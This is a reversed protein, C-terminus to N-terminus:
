NRRRDQGLQHAQALCVKKEVIDGLGKADSVQPPALPPTRSSRMQQTALQCRTGTFRYRSLETFLSDTGNFCLM